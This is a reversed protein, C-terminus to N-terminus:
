SSTDIIAKPNLWIERSDFASRTMPISKPVVKVPTANARAALAVPSSRMFIASSICTMLFHGVVLPLVRSFVLVM